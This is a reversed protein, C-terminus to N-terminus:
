LRRASGAAPEDCGRPPTGRMRARAWGSWRSGATAISAVGDSAAHERSDPGCRYARRNQDHHRVIPATRCGATAVVCRGPEATTDDCKGVGCEVRRHSLRSRGGAVCLLADDAVHLLAEGRGSVIRALVRSDALAIPGLFVGERVPAATLKSTTQKLQGVVEALEDIARTQACCQAILAEDVKRGVDPHAKRLRALHQQRVDIPCEDNRVLSLTEDLLEDSATPMPTRPSTTAVRAFSGAPWGFLDFRPAPDDHFSLLLAVNHACQFATRHFAVDMASFFANGARCESRREPPCNRCPWLAAPHSHWWGLIQEGERRLSIAGHVARWTDATFRLSADHAIAERAPIQAHGRAV